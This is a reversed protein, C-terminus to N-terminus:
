NTPGPSRKLCGHEAEHHELTARAVECAGRAVRIRLHALNFDSATASNDVLVVLDRISAHFKQVTTQHEQRLANGEVCLLM